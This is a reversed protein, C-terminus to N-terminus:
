GGLISKAREGFAFLQSLAMDPQEGIPVTEFHRRELLPALPRM